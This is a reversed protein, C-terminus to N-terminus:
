LVVSHKNVECVQVGERGERGGKRTSAGASLFHIVRCQAERAQSHTLSGVQSLSITAMQNGRSCLLWYRMLLDAAAGLM